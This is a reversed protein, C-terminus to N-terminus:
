FHQWGIQFGVSTLTGDEYFAPTIELAAHIASSSSQWLEYGVRGNLAPGTDAEADSETLAFYGLGAGGGVFVKQAVWYQANLGLFGAVFTGPVGDVNFTTGSIRVNLALQPSVFGGLQVNLGALGSRTDGDGQEPSVSTIGLGLDLGGTFGSRRPGPPQQAYYGGPAPPPPASQAAATGAIALLTAPIALLSPKNM